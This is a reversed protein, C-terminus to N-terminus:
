PLPHEPQRPLVPQHLTKWALGSSDAELGLPTFTMTSGLRLAQPSATRTVTKVAAAANSGCSIESSATVTWAISACGYLAPLQPGAAAATSALDVLALATSSYQPADPLLSKFQSGRAFPERASSGRCLVYLQFIM